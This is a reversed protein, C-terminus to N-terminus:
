ASNQNSRQEQSSACHKYRFIVHEPYQQNVKYLMMKLKLMKNKRFDALTTKYKQASKIQNDTKFKVTSSEEVFKFLTYYVIAKLDSDRFGTFDIIGCAIHTLKNRSDHFMEHIIVSGVTSYEQTQTYLCALQEGRSQAVNLYRDFPTTM